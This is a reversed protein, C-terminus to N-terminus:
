LEIESWKRLPHPCAMIFLVLLNIDCGSVVKSMCACYQHIGINEINVLHMFLTDSWIDGLLYERLIKKKKEIKEYSLKDYHLTM